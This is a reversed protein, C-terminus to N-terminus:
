QHRVVSRQNLRGRVDGPHYPLFFVAIRYRNASPLLMSGLSLSFNQATEPHHQHWKGTIGGDFCTARVTKIADFCANERILLQKQVLYICHQGESQIDSPCCKESKPDDSKEGSSHGFDTLSSIPLHNNPQMLLLCRQPSAAILRLHALAVIAIQRM